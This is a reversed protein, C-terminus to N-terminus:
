NPVSTVTGTKTKKGPALTLGVRGNGTELRSSLALWNVGIPSNESTRVRPGATEYNASSAIANLEALRRVLDEITEREPFAALWAEPLGKTGLHAGVYMGALAAVSDSDGYIRAAINLTQAFDDRFRLASAVALGLASPSRWGGDGDPIASEDLWQSSSGALAIAAKLAHVVTASGPVRTELLQIVKSVITESLGSELILRLLYAGAIAAAIANPHAHTIQASIHAAEILTEGEYAIGIPAIRMVAGCGDSHPNGSTRWDRCQEFKRAGQTCTMGPVTSPTLPDYLWEIFRRGVAAGFENAIFPSLPVDLIAKGLYLAMHTDDTWRFEGPAISSKMTRVASTRVFEMPRGYADGLALGLFAAISHDLLHDDTRIRHDM